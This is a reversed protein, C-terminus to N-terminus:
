QAIVDANGPFYGVMAPAETYPQVFFPLKSTDSALVDADFQSRQSHRSYYSFAKLDFYDDQSMYRRSLDLSIEEAAKADIEASPHIASIGSAEAASPDVVRAGENEFSEILPYAQKPPGYVVVPGVSVGKIADAHQDLWGRTEALTHATEGAYLLVNAKVWVGSSKCAALL